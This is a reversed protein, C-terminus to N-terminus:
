RMRGMSQLYSGFDGGPRGYLEQYTPQVGGFGGFTNVPQAPMPGFPVQGGPPIRLMQDQFMTNPQSQWNGQQGGYMGGNDQLQPSMNRSYWQMAANADNQPGGYQPGQQMPARTAAQPQMMPKQYPMGIQQPFHQDNGLGMGRVGGGLQRMGGGYSPMQGYGYGGQNSQSM